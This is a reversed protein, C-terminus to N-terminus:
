FEGKFGIFFSRGQRPYGVEMEYNEDFLNKVGIEFVFSQDLRVMTKFNVVWFGDLEVEDYNADEDYRKSNYEASGFVSFRDNFRYLDSLYLKHESIGELHDNDAGDSENKADLYTYHLQFDNDAIMYSTFTFELGKFSSEDINQYQEIDDGSVPDTGVIEDQILDEVKSYFFTLGIRNNKPLPKEFGLEYNTAVEEALDPNAIRDNDLGDTYLEQLTPWRSKKGLSFHMDLDELVTLLVGAQPNFASKSERVFGNNVGDNAKQPNQIDYSSGLVFALNDTLKIDDEIGFSVMEQEYNEWPDGIDDQEEHVDKKYHFSCSLTNKPIYDVRAVLSGGYSHDDYTSHWRANSYTNDSYDELANYYTDYFVRTKVSLQDTLETNGIFYITEKDWDTFRWYKVRRASTDPDATPPLGKEKEITNFGIAYEHGQAPTWGLKAAVNWDDLDSNERTDGDEYQNADFDDSVDWGNSNTFGGGLTFYFKDQSSGINFNGKVDSNDTVEVGYSGELKEQPKQSVINIVGGMTNFGYLVSSVGKSLDIRSINDTTLNGADVYGDNPIYLPIGDYFIPVYRSGFGRVNISSEAKRGGNSLTVGPLGSLAQSINQSNTLEIQELDVTEVTSVRTITEAQGSVVVEGLDFVNKDAGATDEAWACYPSFCILLILLVYFDGLRSLNKMKEGKPQNKKSMSENEIWGMEKVAGAGM